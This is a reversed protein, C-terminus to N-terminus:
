PIEPTPRNKEYGWGTKSSFLETHTLVFQLGEYRSAIFFGMGLVQHIPAERHMAAYFPYPREITEPAYPNCESVPLM